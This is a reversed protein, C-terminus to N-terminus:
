AVEAGQSRPYTINDIIYLNLKIAFTLSNKNQIHTLPPPPEFKHFNIQNKFFYIKNVINEIQMM